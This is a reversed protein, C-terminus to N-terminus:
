GVPLQSWGLLKGVYKLHLRGGCKKRIHNEHIVIMPYLGEALTPGFEGLLGVFYPAQTRLSSNGINEANM